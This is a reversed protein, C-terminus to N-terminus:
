VVQASLVEALLSEIRWVRYLSNFVHQQQGIQLVMVPLDPQQYRQCAAQNAQLWAQAQTLDLTLCKNPDPKLQQLHPVFDADLGKCWIGQLMDLLADSRAEVDIGYLISALHLVGTQTPRCFPAIDVETRYALRAIRGWDFEDRGQHPLPHVQLCLNYYDVLERKIYALILWSIPDELAVYIDLTAHLAQIESLSEPDNVLHEGWEVQNILFIPENNLLKQQKLRRTLSLFDDIARYHRSGFLLFASQIPEDVFRIAVSGHNNLNAPMHQRRTAMYHLTSLKGQQNQWLMHFIDQLLRLYDTGRLPSAKLIDIAQQIRTHNPIQINKKDFVFRHQIALASADNLMYDQWAQVSLGNPSSSAQICLVINLPKLQPKLLEVLQPLLQVLLYSYADDFRLYVTIGERSSLRRQRFPRGFFWRSRIPDFWRRTFSM